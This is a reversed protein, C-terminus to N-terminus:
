IPELGMETGYCSITKILINFENFKTLRLKNKCIHQASLKTRNLM